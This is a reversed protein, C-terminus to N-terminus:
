LYDTLLENDSQGARDLNLMLLCSSMLYDPSDDPQPRPVSVISTRHMVSSLRWLKPVGYIESKLANRQLCNVELVTWNEM